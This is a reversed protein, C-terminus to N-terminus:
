PARRFFTRMTGIMGTHGLAVRRPHHDSGLREFSTGVRDGDRTRDSATHPAYPRARLADLKREGIPSLPGRKGEHPRGTALHPASPNM